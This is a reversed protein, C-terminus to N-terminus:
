GSPDAAYQERADLSPTQDLDPEFRNIAVILGSLAWFLYFVQDLRYSFDFLEAVLFGLLASQIAIGVTMALRDQSHIAKLAQRFLALLFCLFVSLGLIGVESLMLLYLNHVLPNAMVYDIINHPDPITLIMRSATEASTNLGVGLLPHTACVKLCLQTLFARTHIPISPTHLLRDMIKPWMIVLIMTLLFTFLALYHFHRRYTILRKRLLWLFFLMSGFIFGLWSGRSYTIVLAMTGAAFTGLCFLRGFVSKTWFLASLSLPLLCLLYLGLTNASQMLGSPRRYISVGASMEGFQLVEGLLHLGIPRGLYAQVLTVCGQISAGAILSWVVLRIEGRTRLNNALYLYLLAVKAVRILDVFVLTPEITNVISLLSIVGLLAVLLDIGNVRITREQRRTITTLAWHLYLAILAGDAFLVDVGGPGGVHTVSYPFITKKIQLPIGLMLAILFFQKWRGTMQVTLPVLVMFLGVLSYRPRLGLVLSVAFGISVGLFTVVALRTILEEGKRFLTM